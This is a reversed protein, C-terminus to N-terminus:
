RATSISFVIAFISTSLMGYLPAPWAKFSVTAPWTCNWTLVSSAASGKM